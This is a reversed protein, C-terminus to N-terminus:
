VPEGSVTNPLIFPVQVPQHPPADGSTPVTPESTHLTHLIPPTDTELPAPPGPALPVCSGPCSLWGGGSDGGLSTLPQSFQRPQSACHRAGEESTKPNTETGQRNIGRGSDRRDEPDNCFIRDWMGKLKLCHLMEFRESFIIRCGQRNDLFSRSQLKM